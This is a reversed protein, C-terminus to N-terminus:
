LDLDPDQDIAVGKDKVFLMYKSHLIIIATILLPISM